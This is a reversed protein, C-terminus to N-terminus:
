STAPNYLSIGAVNENVQLPHRLSPLTRQECDFRDCLRCTVGVPVASNLKELDFGDAYILDRAFKLECGLAIAQVAPQAHYGRSDKQITRALCFYTGSDMQSIQLRIMGPTLFAAFINWRACLGSFRPFRIGSASFRKSINGAVDIRVMHFPIGEARPKRLTTFRHCTQEFGVRFRRGIVDIDYREERAAQLFPQYPMLVAGAFYNALAVRALAKSDPTTLHPDNVIRDLVSRQTLLGIQHALQFIRGRTPLLESLTLIKRDPDYRRLTGREDGTRAIRVQVGLEKELHHILGAYLEESDLRAKKWLEEAGAELEPFHNMHRQILDNVEEPPVSTLNIGRLDENDSLRSALSEASKRASEFARYLALVARSAAPAAAAMERMETSTLSNEEFLPDAFVECLDAILRADHDAAFSDLNVKFIQALKILLTAPLPRKNSEILNLYSASIGLQEALQSQSLSQGRRLARVKAGLRPGETGKEINV